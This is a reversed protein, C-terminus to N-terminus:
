WAVIYDAFFEELLFWFGELYCLEIVLRLIDYKLFVEYLFLGVVLPGFDRLSGFDRM